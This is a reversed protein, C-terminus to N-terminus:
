GAKEVEQKILWAREQLMQPIRIALLLLDMAEASVSEPIESVVRAQFLSGGREPTAEMELFGVYGLYVAYIRVEFIGGKKGKMLFLGMKLRMIGQEFTAPSYIVEGPSARQFEISIPETPKIEPLLVELHDPGTIWAGVEEPSADVWVRVELDQLLTEYIEGRVGKETLKKIDLEPDFESQVAAMILDIRSAVAKSLLSFTVIKQLAPSPQILMNLNVMTGEPIPKVNFRLLVWSGDTLIMLWWEKDPKYKFTVLRCPFNIELIKINFGISQGLESMDVGPKLDEVEIQLMGMRESAREVWSFDKVIHNVVEQPTAKIVLSSQYGYVPITYSEQAVGELAPKIFLKKIKQCGFNLFFLSLTITGFLFYRVGKSGRM